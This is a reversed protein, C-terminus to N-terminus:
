VNFNEVEKLYSDVVLQRDFEKEIKQRGFIGMQKQQEFSLNLFKYVANLLSEEDKIPVVFGTKGDEVIEKCGNRNTTIITRASAAAELLVNSMGEPYYSPHVICHAQLLYPKMDKQEGHWKVYGNNEFEKIIDVYKKDDCDGCIHFCTNPYKTKVSKAVNLYLDIGKEKLIRATFLFNVMETQNYPLPQYETLNVGSGPLLVTKAKNPILKHEEFFKQNGINQFFITNVKKLAIKYLGVTLKQLKGSYEVATGLGTINVIYPINLFRCAMSGYINPKINFTLVLNPKEKKLIKYYQWLLSIDNLPNKSHRNNNINIIRCGIKEFYDQFKLLKTVM